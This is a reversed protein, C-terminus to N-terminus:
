LGEAARLKLLQKDDSHRIIGSFIKILDRLLWAATSVKDCIDISRKYFPIAQSGDYREESSNAPITITREKKSLASEDDFSLCYTSNLTIGNAANEYALLHPLSNKRYYKILIRWDKILTNALNVFDENFAGHM